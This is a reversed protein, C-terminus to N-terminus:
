RRSLLVVDMKHRRYYSLKIENVLTTLKIFVSQDVQKMTISLIHLVEDVDVSGEDCSSPDTTVCPEMMLRCDLLLHEVSQDWFTPLFM